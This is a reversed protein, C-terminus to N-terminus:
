PRGAGKAEALLDDSLPLVHRDEWLGDIRALLEDPELRQGGLSRELLHLVEGNLSRHNHKARGKLREYLPEPIGRIMLAPM